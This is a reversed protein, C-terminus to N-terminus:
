ITSMKNTRLKVTCCEKIIITHYRREHERTRWPQLTRSEPHIERGPRIEGEPWTIVAAPYRIVAPCLHMYIFVFSLLM